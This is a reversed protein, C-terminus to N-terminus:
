DFSGPMPNYLPPAEQTLHSTEWRRLTIRWNRSFLLQSCKRGLSLASSNLPGLKTSPVPCPVMTYSVYPWCINILRKNYALCTLLLLAQATGLLVWESDRAFLSLPVRKTCTMEKGSLVGVGVKRSPLALLVKQRGAWSQNREIRAAICVSVWATYWWEM